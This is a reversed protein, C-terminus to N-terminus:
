PNPAKPGAEAPAPPLGGTPAPAQGQVARTGPLPQLSSDWEALAKTLKAAPEPFRAMVDLAGDPDSSLDYFGVPGEPSVALRYKEDRVSIRLEFTSDSTPILATSVADQRRTRAEVPAMSFASRSITDPRKQDLLDLITPMLDVDQALGAVRLGAPVRGPFRMLLPVHLAAERLSSPDALRHEEGLDEGRTATEVLLTRDLLRLERVANVVKGIESDVYLLEGDYIDRLMDTERGSLDVAHANFKAAFPLWYEAVVDVRERQVIPDVFKYRFPEPPHFPLEPSSYVLMLFFPKKPDRHGRLWEIAKASVQAAGGDLDESAAPDVMEGVEFGQLLGSDRNMQPESTIARTEYGAEKLVEPLTKITEGMRRNLLLGHEPPYRGSLLSALAAADDSSSTYDLEFVAGEPAISDMFPTTPRAAGYLSMRDTRVGETVVLLVSPSSPAGGCASAALALAALATIGISYLAREM